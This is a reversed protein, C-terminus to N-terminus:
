SYSTVVFAFARNANGLRGATGRGSQGASKGRAPMDRVLWAPCRACAHQRLGDRNGGDECARLMLWTATSWDDSSVVLALRCLREKKMFLRFNCDIWGHVHCAETRYFPRRATRQVFRQRSTAM